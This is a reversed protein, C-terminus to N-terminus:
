LLQIKTRSKRSMESCLQRWAEWGNNGGVAAILELAAGELAGILLSYLFEGLEM